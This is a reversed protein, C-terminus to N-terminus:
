PGEPERAGQSGSGQRVYTEFFGRGKEAIRTGAATGQLTFEGRLQLFWRGFGGAGSRSAQADLVRIDLRLTDSERRAVLHLSAPAGIGPAGRAAMSGRQSVGTFRYVQLVGLSDFLALFFPSAGSATDRSEPLVGGYLLSVREGNGMGWEWTTGRWVGWNHDHYAPATRVATCVGDVCFRGSASARLAPVVYGSLVGPERLEVAPFFQNPAPTLELEFRLGPARGEIRYVGGQQRVSSAGLVLDASATDLQVESAPIDTAYRRLSGDERHHTVLLQGGWQGRGVSGGVVFSLYWWEGPGTVVNFYHWEGWTSENGEPIHFRDLEDYLEERSPSMWALDDRSDEWRGEVVRLGAGVLAARSPIEGGARLHVTRGGHTLYVLKQEIVPSVGAVVERHRPGGLLQRTVFRARDIGFFLGNQSGTRLGELDIGEPLATVEGGGVLAVDRSQILMAEGVSLLVLMVGAGIAYGFLLLLARGKRVLLHRFALTLLLPALSDPLWLAPLPAPWNGM